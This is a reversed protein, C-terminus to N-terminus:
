YSQADRLYEVLPQLNYACAQKETYVRMTRGDALQKTFQLQDYTSQNGFVVHVGRVCVQLNPVENFLKNPDHQEVSRSQANLLKSIGVNIANGLTVSAEADSGGISPTYGYEINPMNQPYPPLVLGADPLYVKKSVPELVAPKTVGRVAQIIMAAIHENTTYNTTRLFHVDLAIQLALAFGGVLAAAIYMPKRWNLHTTNSRKSKQQLKAMQRYSLGCFASACGCSEHM